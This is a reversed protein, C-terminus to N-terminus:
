QIMHLKFASGGPITLTRDYNYSSIGKYTLTKGIAWGFFDATGALLINCQPAYIHAYVQTNGEYYVDTAAGVMYYELRSPTTKPDLTTPNKFSVNIRKLELTESTVYIRVYGNVVFDTQGTKPQAWEYMGPSGVNSGGILTFTSTGPVLLVPKPTTTPVTMVPPYLPKILTDMNATWGSIESDPGQIISGTIGPRANGNVDGNGLDINGDSIVGGNITAKTGNSFVGDIGVFGYDTRPDGDVYVTATREEDKTFTGVVPAFILKVPNDREKTRRAWTRVSNARQRPDINSKPDPPLDNVNTWTKTSPNWIGFLVDESLETSDLTLGKDYRQNSAPDNDIIANDLEMKAAALLAEDVLNIEGKGALTICWASARASADASNQLQARALRLRGFDVALSVFAILVLLLVTLIVLTVGRRQVRAAFLPIGRRM